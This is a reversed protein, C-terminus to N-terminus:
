PHTPRNDRRSNISNLAPRLLGCRLFRSNSTDIRLFSPSSQIAIAHGIECMKQGDEIRRRFCNEHEQKSICMSGKMGRKLLVSVTKVMASADAAPKVVADFWKTRNGKWGADRAYVLDNGFIVGVYDFEFGARYICVWNPERWGGRVGM